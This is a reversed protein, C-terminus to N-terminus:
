WFFWFPILKLQFNSKIKSKLEGKDKRHDPNGINDKGNEKKWIKETMEMTKRDGLKGRKKNEKEIRGGKLSKKGELKRMKKKERKEM